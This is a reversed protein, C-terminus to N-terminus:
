REDQLCLVGEKYYGCPIVWATNGVCYKHLLWACSHAAEGGEFRDDFAVFHLPSLAHEGHPDSGVQM